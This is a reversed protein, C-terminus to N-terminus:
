GLLKGKIKEKTFLARKLVWWCIYHHIKLNLCQTKAVKHNLTALSLIRDGGGDLYSDELCDRLLPAPGDARSRWLLESLYVTDEEDRVLCITPQLFCLALSPWVPM